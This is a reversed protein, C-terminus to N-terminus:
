RGTGAAAGKGDRSGTRSVRGLGLLIGLAICIAFVALIFLSRFSLPPAGDQHTSAYGALELCILLGIPPVLALLATARAILAGVAVCTVLTLVGTVAPTGLPGSSWPRVQDIVEWLTALLALAVFGTIEIKVRSMHFIITAQRGCDPRM